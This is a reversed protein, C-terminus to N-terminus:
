LVRIATKEIDGRLVPHLSTRTCLDVETGLTEELLFELDTLEIFGFKKTPDRDIFVDIDSTPTAENRATSGFLYLAAAGLARIRPEAKRILAIAQDRNM